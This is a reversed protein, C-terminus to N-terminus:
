TRFYSIRNGLFKRESKISKMGQLRTYIGLMGLIQSTAKQNVSGPEYLGKEQIESRKTTFHQTRLWAVKINKKYVQSLKLLNKGTLDLNIQDLLVYSVM